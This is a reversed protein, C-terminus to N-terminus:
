CYLIWKLLLFEHWADKRALPIHSKYNKSDNGLIGRYKFILDQPQIKMDAYESKKFWDGFVKVQNRAPATQIAM